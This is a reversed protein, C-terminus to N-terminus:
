GASKSAHADLWAKLDDLARFTLLKESLAELDPYSLSCIRGEVDEPLHGCVRRLPRLLVGAGGETLGESRGEAKALREVSTVYPMNMEEEFEALEVRFRQELDTRLHMMWDTLRFLERLEDTNYGARYLNRVLQWKARYRGEPDGATRLAEIQARAVQVPLSLDDKWEGKLKDILKCTPFKLRSEFDGVRFMDESPQWREDLDALVVVTVVRQDFTWFLGGNFKAIRREFGPEPGSQIEWHLLVWLPEGSLLWVKVLLDVRKNRSGAQGLVLSVEKDYWEVPRNWDIEGYIAAFYKAVFQGLHQRVSEKWAGDYDSDQEPSNRQPNEAM